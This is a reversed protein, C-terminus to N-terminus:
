ARHRRQLLALRVERDYLTEGGPIRMDRVMELVHRAPAPTLISTILIAAFSVPAGVIAALPGPLGIGVIGGSMMAMASVSFGAMLGALIGWSNTRKWWVSLMLAPFFVSGSVALSWLFLGLPDGPMMIAIWGGGMATLVIGARASMVRVNNSVLESNPANIVDEALITGMGAICSSAGALAACVIGVAAFYVVALPFGSAVPLGLLVLDRKFVFSALAGAPARGDVGTVGLATLSQFWAPLDSSMVGVLQGMVIDRLFVAVASLTMIVVGAILAAWGLSKRAEHVGPTTGARSLLTPSGAVGIMLALSSFVFAASGISGFPTAFRQVIPELNTGPLTFSWAPALMEPISQAIETRMLARLIPGHSMQPLPLNTILVAAIAAPVLLAALAAIAQAASSWTAARMGGPGVIM